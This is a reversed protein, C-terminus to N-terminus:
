LNWNEVPSAQMHAKKLDQESIVLYRKVMDLSSHGLMQQLAYINPYNRLYNVAFTHRFDHPSYAPVGARECIRKITKSVNNRDLKRNTETCFLYRSENSSAYKWVALSTTPSFFVVREKNGKGLVKVSCAKYDVKEKEITILEGVRVGTDLLFLMLARNRLGFNRQDNTVVKSKQIYPASRNVVAMMKKMHELPIPEITRKEPRPREVGNMPNTNIMEETLMWKFFVALGVHYNLLTKNCVKQAALFTRLDFKTVQDVTKDDTFNIFKRLTNLYDNITNPSLRRAQCSINFFETAKSLLFRSTM